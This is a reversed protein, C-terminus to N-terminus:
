PIEPGCSEEWWLRYAPAIEEPACAVVEPCEYPHNRAVLERLPEFQEASSKIVLLVEAAAELKGQWRYHSEFGPMLNVCAALRAELILKALVRAENLGPATVFVIRPTFPM